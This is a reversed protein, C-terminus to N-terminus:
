VMAAVLLKLGIGAVKESKGNKKPVEEPVEEYVERIIRNGGEDVRGFVERIDTAQFKALEFPRGYYRAGKTHTLHERFFDVARDAKREDFNVHAPRPLRNPREM